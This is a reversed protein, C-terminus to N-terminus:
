VNLDSKAGDSFVQFLILLLLLFLLLTDAFNQSRVSQLFRIIYKESKGSKAEKIHYISPLIPAEINKNRYSRTDEQDNIATQDTM